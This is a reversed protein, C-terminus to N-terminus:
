QEPRRWLWVAVGAMFLPVGVKVWLPVASVALVSTSLVMMLSAAWKAQRPVAGRERWRRIGAGHKPHHLLWQELAPWGRGGAWAAVLLFPVTPLGPLVVGILGLAVCALALLRWLLQSVPRPLVFRNEAGPTRRAPLLTDRTDPHGAPSPLEASCQRDHDAGAMKGQDTPVVMAQILNKVLLDPRPRCENHPWAIYGRQPDPLANGL